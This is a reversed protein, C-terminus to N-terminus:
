PIFIANMFPMKTLLWLFYMIKKWFSSWHYQFFVSIWSKQNPHRNFHVFISREMEGRRYKKEFNWLSNASKYYSPYSYDRSKLAINYGIKLDVFPTVPRKVPSVRTSIYIPLTSYVRHYNPSAITYEVTDKKTPFISLSVFSGYTWFVVM